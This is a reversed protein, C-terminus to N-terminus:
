KAAAEADSVRKRTRGARLGATRTVMHRDSVLRQASLRPLDRKAPRRRQWASPAPRGARRVSARRHAHPRRSRHHPDEHPTEGQMAASPRLPSTTGALKHYQSTVGVYTSVPLVRTLLFIDM